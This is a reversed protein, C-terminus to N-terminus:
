TTIHSSRNCIHPCRCYCDNTGVVVFGHAVLLLRRAADAAPSAQGAPPARRWRRSRSSCRWDAGVRGDHGRRRRRRRSLSSSWAISRRLLRATYTYTQTQWRSRLLFVDTTSSDCDDCTITPGRRGLDLSCRGVLPDGAVFPKLLLRPNSTSYLAQTHTVKVATCFFSCVKYSGNLELALVRTQWRESDRKIGGGSHM